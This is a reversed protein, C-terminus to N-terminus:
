KAYMALGFNDDSLRDMCKRIVFALMPFLYFENQDRLGIEAFQDFHEFLLMLRSLIADERRNIYLGITECILDVISSYTNASIDKISRNACGEWFAYQLLKKPYLDLSHALMVPAPELSVLGYLKYATAVTVRTIPSPSLYRFKLRGVTQHEIAYWITSSYWRDLDEQLKTVFYIQGDVNRFLETRTVFEVLMRDYMKSGYWVDTSNLKPAAPTSTGPYLAGYDSPLDEFTKNELISTGSEDKIVTCDYKLIYTNRDRDYFCENFISAINRYMTDLKELAAYEDEKFLTRFETGVHSYVFQYTSIVNKEIEAILTANNAQEAVLQYTIEYASDNEISSKTVDTVRYLNRKGLTMMIFHDNVTPKITKPLVKATGEGMLSNKNEDKELTVNLADQCIIVFDKIKNYSEKNVTVSSVNGTNTIYDNRDSFDHAYYIVNTTIATLRSIPTNKTDIKDQIVANGIRQEIEHPRVISAGEGHRITTNNRSTGGGGVSTNGTKFYPM